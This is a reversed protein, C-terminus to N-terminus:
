NGHAQRIASAHSNNAERGGASIYICASLFLGWVVVIIGVILWPM